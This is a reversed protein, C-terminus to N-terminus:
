MVFIKGTAEMLVNHFYYDMDHELTRLMEDVEKQKEPSIKRNMVKKGFVKTAQYLTLPAPGFTVQGSNIYQTLMEYIFEGPRKILGLRASRMTGIANMLMCDAKYGNVVSLRDKQVQYGKLIEDFSKYFNDYAQKFAVGEKYRREYRTVHGIRHAMMWPTLPIRADGTNNTFVITIDDTGHGGIIRSANAVGIMDNLEEPSVPGLELFKSGGKVQVPFIRFDFPCKSFFKFAKGIVVPSTVLKKDVDHRFGGKNSFDGLPCIIAYLPKM